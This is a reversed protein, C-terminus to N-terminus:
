SKRRKGLWIRKIGMWVLKLLFVSLFLYVVAMLFRTFYTALILSVGQFVENVNRVFQKAEYKWSDKIQKWDFILDKSVRIDFFTYNLRDLQYVRSEALRDIQDKIQFRQANLREILELKESVATVLTEADQIRTALDRIKDYDNKASELTEEVSALKIKLIDLEDDVSDVYKKISQTSENLVEPKLSELIEIVEKDKAKEVKFRYYCYDDNKNSEEFIVYDKEKLDSITECVKDLQRTKIEGSYTKVEFSEADAGTSYQPQQIITRNAMNLALEPAETYFADGGYFGEDYDSYRYSEGRNGFFTDISFGVLAIALIIIIAGVILGGVIKAISKFSWDFNKFFSM